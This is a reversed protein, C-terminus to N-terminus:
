RRLRDFSFLEALPHKRKEILARLLGAGLMSYTIGNGGYAMAFLIRKEQEPHAGFFPLGDSTEAFTGGWAFAPALPLHPFLKQVQKRLTRAKGEVRADRRAAIDVNDDEGGVLLRGDGTTRMYLYPRASEWVMTHKLPGLTADDIPDTITAYSSRNRAVRQDLWQQSAYGAAVVVHRARVTAGHETHLNIGRATAEFREVRTRDFVWSGRKRLRALLRSAMRYPDVRAAQHSLIAVPAEFGYQAQLADSTLLEVQFGHRLRLEFEEELVRAHRRKSAFYLSDMWAFDVDRIDRAKEQLMLLSEACSRYALLADDEGYQKALDIMHTDIEYQLLATSASSSGWGVDRQELVVVEHGHGALEDAILAGTIGGGIVAVDCRLDERLAPFASMLGNKVAWYPYGSKLDM